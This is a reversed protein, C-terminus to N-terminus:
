TIFKLKKIKISIINAIVTIFIVIVIVIVIIIPTYCHCAAYHHHPLAPLHSPFAWLHRHSAMLLHGAEVKGYLTCFGFCICICM